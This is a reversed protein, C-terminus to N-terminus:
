PQWAPCYISMSPPRPIIQCIKMGRLKESLPFSIFIELKGSDDLTVQGTQEIREDQHEEKEIKRDGKQESM